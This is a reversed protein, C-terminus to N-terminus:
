LLRVERGLCFGQLFKYLAIMLLLLVLVFGGALLAREIVPLDNFTETDLEAFRFTIYGLGALCGVITILCLGFLFQKRRISKM